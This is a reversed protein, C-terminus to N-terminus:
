EAFVVRIDVQLMGYYRIQYWMAVSLAESSTSIAMSLLNDLLCSSDM